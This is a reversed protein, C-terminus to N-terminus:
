TDLTFIEDFEESSVDIFVAREKLLAPAVPQRGKALSGATITCIRGRALDRVDLAKVLDDLGHVESTTATALAELVAYFHGPGVDYPIQVLDPCYSAFAYFVNHELLLRAFTATFSLAKEFRERQRRTVSAPAPPLFADLLILINQSEAREFEKVYLQRMRASTRWHIHYVSDGDRYQRLSRFDGMAAKRSAAQFWSAGQGAARMLAEDNITGLRPFVIVERGGTPELSTEVLGFPFQTSIIPPTLVHRGREKFTRRYTMLRKGRPPLRSIFSLGDEEGDGALWEARVMLGLTGIHRKENEVTFTITSEDGAFIHEPLELGSRIRSMNISSVVMSCVLLSLLLATTLYLLNIGTNFSVACFAVSLFLYTFGSHTFGYHLLPPSEAGGRRVLFEMSRRVLEWFLVLVLLFILVAYRGTLLVIPPGIVVVLWSYVGIFHLTRAIVSLVRRLCGRM